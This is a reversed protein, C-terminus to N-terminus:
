KQAISKSFAEYFQQLQPYDNLLTLHKEITEFDGRIAPGTQVDNPAYNALRLVTENILPLLLKFNLLEKKYFDDALAFLHNTFNSVVVAGLHLKIRAEDNAVFCKNSLTKAFEQLKNVVLESNGDVIFPIEPLHETEKRLTQLPWMVGYNSSAKQLVQKSLSGATHILLKDRLHLENVVNAVADDIVAIIYINADLRINAINMCSEAQVLTALQTLKEADRGVIQKIRHGNKYMLKCLVTAVNGTGIMVVDM